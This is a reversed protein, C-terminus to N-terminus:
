NSVQLKCLTKVKMVDKFNFTTKLEAYGSGAFSLSETNLFCRKLSYNFHIFSSVSHCKYFSFEQRWQFLFDFLFIFKGSDCVLLHYIQLKFM